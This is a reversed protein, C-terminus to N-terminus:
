IVFGTSRKFYQLDENELSKIFKAPTGGYLSCSIDMKKNITSGAALISRPPLTTGGLLICGTGIFCYEEIIVPSSSQRCTKLDISHTLITSRFGAFTSFRKIEIRNTCDILHRNTIATHEGLILDPMREDDQHQFHGSKLSLPFASIWNLNGITSFEDLKLKNLGKVVNLHGIKSGSALSLNDVFIWSLGIKSSPHLKYKFIWNYLRRKIFWPLIIIILSLIKKM